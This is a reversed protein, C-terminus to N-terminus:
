LDRRVVANPRILGGSGASVFAGQFTGDPSYERVSGNGGNGILYNGSPLMTVGEAQSLGTAFNSIFNGANDFIAIVGGSWDNVMMEGSDNFWINTPGQLNSDIFTELENGDPGFKTVSKGNFSSVYLNGDTDWDIGISQSVGTSTFEDVFNGELDYRLVKFNSQWQLVYLYGDPGIKMRTPGAIGTAFDNIYQGSTANHRSIKGSNLNSVLMENKDELFLIDQPWALQEETFVKPNEGNQDYRLIQWPPQDFNGADSVYIHYEQSFIDTVKMELSGTINATTVSITVDGAAVASVEGDNSVTANNNSASWELVTTIQFVEDFQDFGVATLQSTPTETVDLTNGNSSSITISTLVPPGLVEIQISATIEGVTATVISSGELIAIVLGNGDVSVNNNNVSWDIASSITFPDNFQDFGNATLTTSEGISITNGNASELEITTLVPTEEASDDSCGSFILVITLLFTLALSKM